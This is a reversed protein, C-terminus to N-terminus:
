SLWRLHKSNVRQFARFNNDGYLLFSPYSLHFVTDSLMYYTIVVDHVQYKNISHALISNWRSKMKIGIIKMRLGFSYSCWMVAQHMSSFNIENCQSCQCIEKLVNLNNQISFLVHFHCQCVPFVFHFFICNRDLVILKLYNKLPEASVQSFTELQLTVVGFGHYQLPKSTNLILLIFYRQLHAPIDPWNAEFANNSISQFSETASKGFYCFLFLNVSGVM